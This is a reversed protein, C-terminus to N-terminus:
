GARPETGATGGAGANGTRRPKQEVSGEDTRNRRDDEAADGPHLMTDARWATLFGHPRADRASSKGEPCGLKDISRAPEIRAPRSRDRKSGPYRACPRANLHLYRDPM